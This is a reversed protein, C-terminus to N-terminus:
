AFLAAVQVALLALSVLIGAVPVWAPCRPAGPPAPVRRRKLNLLSAHVLVFVVLIVFSTAQALQVLPVTLALVLVGLAVLLTAAIPTRTRPHIRGLASPLWGERSMGYLVRAAMIIQILAGNVVAFLSVLSIAVPDRGTAHVYVLALPADSAALDALPLSLVAVLAVLIYLATAAVTALLIARPMNRVPDKVEEAVNVMDEFGIFAYFALFAGLAIASWAAREPPPVLEAARQPLAALSDGAVAIILILGGIEVVTTAAAVWASEAIGWLALAALALVLAPIAISRPVDVFVHLYGVFGNAIAASSVLSTAVIMLGVFVPLRRMGLGQAVYLPEGASRPHRASMEAYTFATLFAAAAALLFAIPTYPGAIGAVKGVLVYIGAGVITGLGYFTLIPLSLARRLTPAGPTVAPSEDSPGFNM